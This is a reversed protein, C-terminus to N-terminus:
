LSSAEFRKKKTVVIYYATETMNEEGIWDLKEKKRQRKYGEQKRRRKARKAEM